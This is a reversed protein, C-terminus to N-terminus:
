LMSRDRVLKVSEVIVLTLLGLGICTLFSSWSLLTLKFVDRFPPVFYVTLLSALSALFGLNLYHNTFVGLKFLSLSRSRVNYSHILQSVSLTIFTMTRATVLDTQQGMMFASLSLVDIMIGQLVILGALGDGLIPTEPRRPKQTM